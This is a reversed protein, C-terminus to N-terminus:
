HPLMQPSVIRAQIPNAPKSTNNAPQPSRLAGCNASHWRINVASLLAGSHSTM